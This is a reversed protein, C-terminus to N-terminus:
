LHRRTDGPAKRTYRRRKHHNFLSNAVVLKNKACFEILRSGRENRDGLGYNGVIGDVQEEGVSANWDGMIILNEEGKVYNIVKNIDEYMTEIVEDEESSTPMYVQVIVTDKPKTGLKVLIIRSSFQVYGTVLNGLKGNLIVGVGGIGTTGQNTGTHIIRYDGSRFDGPEPWRMESIGIIDTEMRDMELKLNELKGCQLLTKVNWTAIKQTRNSKKLRAPGEMTGVRLDSQPVIVGSKHKVSSEPM